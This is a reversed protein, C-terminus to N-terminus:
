QKNKTELKTQKLVLRQEGTKKIPKITIVQTTIPVFAKKLEKKPNRVCLTIIFGEVCGKSVMHIDYKSCYGFFNNYKVYM